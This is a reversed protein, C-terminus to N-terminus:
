NQREPKDFLVCQHLNGGVEGTLGFCKNEGNFGRAARADSEYQKGQRFEKTLEFAPFVAFVIELHEKSGAAVLTTLTPVACCWLESLMRGAFQQELMNRDNGLTLEDDAAHDLGHVVAPM